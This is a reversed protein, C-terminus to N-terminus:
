HLWRESVYTPADPDHEFLLELNDITRQWLERLEPCDVPLQEMEAQLQMALRKLKDDM